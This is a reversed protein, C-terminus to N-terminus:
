RSFQITKTIEIPEALQNPFEVRLKLELSRHNEAPLFEGVAAKLKAQDTVTFTLYSRNDAAPEVKLFAACNGTVTYKFELNAFLEAESAYPTLISEHTTKDEAVYIEAAFSPDNVTIFPASPTSSRVYLDLEIKDPSLMKMDSPVDYILERNKALGTTRIKIKGKPFTFDSTLKFNSALMVGQLREKQGSYYYGTKLYDSLRRTDSPDDVVEIQFDTIWQTPTTNKVSIEPSRWRMFNTFGFRGEEPSRVPWPWALALEKGEEISKLQKIVDNTENPTEIRGDQTINMVIENNKCRDRFQFTSGVDCKDITFYSERDSVSLLRLAGTNDGRLANNRTMVAFGGRPRRTEREPDVFIKFAGDDITLRDSVVYNPKDGRTSAAKFSRVAFGGRPRRTDESMPVNISVAEDYVSFLPLGESNQVQFIPRGAEKGEKTGRIVPVARAYLAYPVAQMKVAPGLSVYAADASLKVEAAVFLGKEWPVADMTGALVTGAADGVTVNVLGTKATTVAREEAYYVTGAEDQLKVKLVVEKEQVPKGGQYILAQYNFATPLAPSSVKDGLLEDSPTAPTEQARAFLALLMAAALFLVQKKMNGAQEFKLM